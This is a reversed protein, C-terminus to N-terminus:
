KMALYKKHSIRKGKKGNAKVTWHLTKGNKDKSTTVKKKRKPLPGRGRRPLSPLKKTPGKKKQKARLMRIRRNLVAKDLQLKQAQTLRRRKAKRPKRPKKTPNKIRLITSDHQVKYYILGNKGKKTVISGAKAQEGVTRRHIFKRVQSM